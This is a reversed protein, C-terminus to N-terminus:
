VGSRSMTGSRNSLTTKNQKKKRKHKRSDCLVLVVLLQKSPWIAIRARNVRCFESEAAGTLDIRSLAGDRAKRLVTGNCTM